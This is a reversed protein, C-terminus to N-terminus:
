TRRTSSASRRGRVRGPRVRQARLVVEPVATHMKVPMRTSDENWVLIDFAPPQKGLLWNNGIYQFVLDNARLADFVHAMTDGELYGRKAMQKELGAITAEDTFLGLVGPVLLRHQHQPADGVQDLRDGVAANYALGLATLTGGLCLSVTNM